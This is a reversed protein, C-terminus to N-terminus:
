EPPGVGKGPLGEPRPPPQPSAAAEPGEPVLENPGVGQGPLGESPRETPVAQPDDESSRSTPDYDHM